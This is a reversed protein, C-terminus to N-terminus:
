GADPGAWDPSRSGAINVCCRAGVRDALALQEQCHRIAQQRTGEDPSIPNSWAGVEAIVIDAERAARVYAAM